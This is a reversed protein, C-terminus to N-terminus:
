RGSPVRRNPLTPLNAVYQRLEDPFIPQLVQHRVVDLVDKELQDLPLWQARNDDDVTYLVWQFVLDKGVAIHGNNYVTRPMKIAITDTQM